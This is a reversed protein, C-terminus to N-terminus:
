STSLEAYVGFHDSPWVGGKAENCVVRCDLVAGPGRVGMTAVYIYDIRRDPLGYISAYTNETSWTAGSGQSNHVEWADTYFTSTGDISNLGRMYRHENSEPVANFDGVLIVPYGGDIRRSQLYDNLAPMQSERQWGHRLLYHYTTANVFPISGIPTSFKTALVPGGSTLADDFSPLDFHNIDEFEWRSAISLGSHWTHQYGFGDLLEPTQTEEVEQFGILDRQLREIWEHILQRREEYPGERMWTNLTLVKISKM